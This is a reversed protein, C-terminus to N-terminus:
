ISVKKRSAIDLVNIADGVEWIQYIHNDYSSGHGSKRVLIGKVNMANAVRTIYGAFNAAEGWKKNYAELKREIKGLTKVMARAVRLNVSHADKYEVSWGYATTYGKEMSYQSRLELSDMYDGQDYAEWSSGGFNRPSGNENLYQFTVSFIGIDRGDSFIGKMIEHHVMMYRDQKEM